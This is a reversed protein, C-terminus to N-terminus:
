KKGSSVSRRPPNPHRIQTKLRQIKDLGPKQTKPKPQHETKKKSM